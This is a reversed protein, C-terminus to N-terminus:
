PTSITVNVTATGSYYGRDVVNVMTLGYSHSSDLQVTFEQDFSEHDNSGPCGSSAKRGFFQTDGLMTQAYEIPNDQTPPVTLGVVDTTYNSFNEVLTYNGQITQAPVEQDVLFYAINRYVGCEGSLLINGYIDLVNGNTISILSGLGGTGYGTDRILTKPIQVYFSSANSTEGAATVTVSRNGGSASSTIAFTAQIQTDTHSTITATIGSGASVSPTSASFGTGNITVSVSNGVLGRPPSISTIEPQM